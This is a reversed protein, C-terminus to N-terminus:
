RYRMAGADRCLRMAMDPMLFKQHRSAIQNIMVTDVITRTVKDPQASHGRM